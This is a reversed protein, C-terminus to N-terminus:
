GLCGREPCLNAHAECDETFAACPMRRLSDLSFRNDDLGAVGCSPADFKRPKAASGGIALRAAASACWPKASSAYRLAVAQPRDAPPQLSHFVNSSVGRAYGPIGDEIWVERIPQKAGAETDTFRRGSAIPLGLVTFYEPSAFRRAVGDDPLDRVPHPM